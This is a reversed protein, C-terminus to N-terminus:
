KPDDPNAMWKEYVEKSHRICEPIGLKCAWVLIQNRNLSTLHLDGDREDFGVHDYIPEM